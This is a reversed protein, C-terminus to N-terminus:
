KPFCHNSFLEQKTLKEPNRPIRKLYGGFNDDFQHRFYISNKTWIFINSHLLMDEKDIWIFDFDEDSATSEIIDDFNENYSNLTITIYERLSYWLKTQDNM